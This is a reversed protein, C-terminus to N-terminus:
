GHRPEEGALSTLYRAAANKVRCGRVGEWQAIETEPKGDEYDDYWEAFGRVADARAAAELKTMHEDDGGSLDPFDTLEPHAMMYEIVKQRERVVGQFEQADIERQKRIRDREEEVERVRALAADRESEMIKFGDAFEARVTEEAREARAVAAALAESMELHQAILAPSQHRMRKLEEETNILLNMRKRYHYENVKAKEKEDALAAEAAALASALRTIEARPDSQGEGVYILSDKEYGM